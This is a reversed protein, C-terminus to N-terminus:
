SYGGARVEAMIRQEPIKADHLTSPVEVVKYTAENDPDVQTM